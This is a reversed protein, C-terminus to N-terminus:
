RCISFSEFLKACFTQQKYSNDSKNALVKERDISLFFFIIFGISNSTSIIYANMFFKERVRKIVNVVVYLM